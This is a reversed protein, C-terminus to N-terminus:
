GFRPSFSLQAPLPMQASLGSVELLGNVGTSLPLNNYCLLSNEPECIYFKHALAGPFVHEFNLCLDVFERKHIHRETMKNYLICCNVKSIRKLNALFEKSAFMEPVNTDVCLDVIVMDYTEPTLDVYNFADAIIIKLSSYKKISFYKKALEVVVEDKEVATIFCHPMYKEKLLTVGSGAGMGLILM